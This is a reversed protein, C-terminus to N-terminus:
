ITEMEVSRRRRAEPGLRGERRQDRPRHPAAILRMAKHKRLTKQIKEKKGGVATTVVFVMFQFARMNAM